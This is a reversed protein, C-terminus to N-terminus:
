KAMPVPQAEVIVSGNLAYVYTSTTETGTHVQFFIGNAGSTAVQTAGVIQSVEQGVSAPDSAVILYRENPHIRLGAYLSPGHFVFADRGIERLVKGNADLVQLHPSFLGQGVPASIVSVLYERPVEPLRFSAYASNMGPSIQFCATNEDLSVTVAKEALLVPTGSIYDPASACNRMEFALLPPVPPKTACGAAAVGMAATAVAITTRKM